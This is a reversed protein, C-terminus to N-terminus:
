GLNERRKTSLDKGFTWCIFLKKKTKGRGPVIKNGWQYFMCEQDKLEKQLKGCHIILVQTMRWNKYALKLQRSNLRM